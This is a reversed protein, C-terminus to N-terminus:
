SMWPAWEFRDRRTEREPSTEAVPEAAEPVPATAAEAAVPRRERVSDRTVMQIPEILLTMDCAELWREVTTARPSILGREIRSVSAQPIDAAAALARQTLGARERARALLVETTGVM